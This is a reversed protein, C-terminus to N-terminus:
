KMHNKCITQATTLGALLLFAIVLALGYGSFNYTRGTYARAVGLLNSVGILSVLSISWKMLSALLGLGNVFINKLLSESATYRFPMYGLFCISLAVIAATLNSGLLIAFLKSFYVCLILVGPALSEFVISLYRFIKPLPTNRTFHFLVTLGIGFFLPILASLFVILLDLAAGSLLSTFLMSDSSMIFVGM